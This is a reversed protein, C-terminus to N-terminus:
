GSRARRDRLNASPLPEVPPAILTLCEARRCTRRRRSGDRVGDQRAGAADARRSELSELCDQLAAANWIM